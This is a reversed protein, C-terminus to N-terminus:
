RGLIRGSDDLIKARARKPPQSPTRKMFGGGRWSMEVVVVGTM